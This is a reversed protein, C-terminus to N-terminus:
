FCLLCNTKLVILDVNGWHTLLILVHHRVEVNHVLLCRHTHTHTHAHAHTHTHVYPHTSLLLLEIALRISKLTLM